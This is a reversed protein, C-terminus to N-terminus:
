IGYFEIVEALGVFVAMAILLGILSWHMILLEKKLSVPLKELDEARVSSHKLYAGPFTVIGSVQGIFRLQGMLGAARYYDRASVTYGGYLLDLIVDMKTRAMHLAVALWVIQGLLVLGCLYSVVTM